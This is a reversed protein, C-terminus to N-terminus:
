RVASRDSTGNNNAGDQETDNNGHDNSREMENTSSKNIGSKKGRVMKV